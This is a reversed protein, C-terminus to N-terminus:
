NKLFPLFKESMILIVGLTIIIVGVWRVPSVSEQWLLLGLATILVYALALIPYAFSIESKSLVMIWAVAGFAYLLLGVWILPQQFYPAFNAVWNSATHMSGVTALRNHLIAVQNVGYKLCVQGLVSLVITILIGILSNLTPFM